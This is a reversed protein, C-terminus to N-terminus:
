APYLVNDIFMPTYEKSKSNSCSEAWASRVSHRESENMIDWYKRVFDALHEPWPYKSLMAFKIPNEACCAAFGNTTTKELYMLIFGHYVGPYPKNWVDNNKKPNSTMEMIRTQGNGAGKTATELWVKKFCRLRGYPYNNIIYATEPSTHGRLVIM